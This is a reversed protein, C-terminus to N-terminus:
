GSISGNKFYRAKFINPDRGQGKLIMHRWQVFSLRWSVIWWVQCCYCESATPQTVLYLFLDVSFVSQFKFHM